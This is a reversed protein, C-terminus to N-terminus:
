PTTNPVLLDIHYKAGNNYTGLHGYLAQGDGRDTFYFYLDEGSYGRSTIKAGFAELVQRYNKIIELRSVSRDGRDIVQYVGRVKAGHLQTSTRKQKKEEFRLEGLPAEEVEILEYGPMPKLFGISILAKESGGSIHKLMVRRNLAKGTETDNTAVPSQEGFGQSQLRKGDVGESILAQKVSAARRESLEQNASDAGVNDTHGQVELVLGPYKKMLAVAALVAPRSAPKLTAKATDFYIGDLKVEGVKKLEAMLADPDIKLTQRFAELQVMEVQFGDPYFTAKGWNGALHFVFSIKRDARASFIEAGKAELQRRYALLLDQRAAKRESKDKTKQLRKQHVKWYQGAYAQRKRTKDRLEYSLKVEDHNKYDARDIV